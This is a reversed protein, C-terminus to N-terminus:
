GTPVELSPGLISFGFTSLDAKPLHTKPAGGGSFIFLAWCVTFDDQAKKKTTQIRTAQLSITKM